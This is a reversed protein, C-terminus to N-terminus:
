EDLEDTKFFERLCDSLKVTELHSSGGLGRVNGEFVFMSQDFSCLRTRHGFASRM